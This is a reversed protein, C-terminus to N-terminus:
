RAAERLIGVGETREGGLSAGSMPKKRGNGILNLLEQETGKEYLRGCM